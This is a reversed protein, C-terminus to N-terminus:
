LVPHYYKRLFFDCLAEIVVLMRVPLLNFPGHFFSIVKWGAFKKTYPRESFDM